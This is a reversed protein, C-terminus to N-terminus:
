SIIFHLQIRFIWLLHFRIHDANFLLNCLQILYHLLCLLEFSFILITFFFIFLLNLDVVFLYRFWVLFPSTYELLAIFQMVLQMFDLYLNLM